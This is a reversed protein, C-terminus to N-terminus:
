IYRKAQWGVILIDFQTDKIVEYRHRPLILREHADHGHFATGLRWGMLQRFVGFEFEQIIQQTIFSNHWRSIGRNAKDVTVTEAM